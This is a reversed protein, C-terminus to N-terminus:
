ECSKTDHGEGWGQPRGVGEGTFHLLLRQVYRGDQHEHHEDTSGQADSVPRGLAVFRRGVVIGGAPANGTELVAQGNGTVIHRCGGEQPNGGQHEGGAVIAQDVGDAKQDAPRDDQEQDGFAQTVQALVGEGVNRRVTQLLFFDAGQRGRARQHHHREVQDRLHDTGALQDLQQEAEVVM